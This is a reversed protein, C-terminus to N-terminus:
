HNFTNPISVYPSLNGSKHFNEIRVKLLAGALNSIIRHWNLILKIRSSKRFSDIMTIPLTIASTFVHLAQYNSMKASDLYTTALTM